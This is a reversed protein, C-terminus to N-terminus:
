RKLSELYIICNDVIRQLHRKSYHHEIELQEFTMGNIYKNILIAKHLESPIANIYEMCVSRHVILRDIETNILRDLNDIKLNINAKTAPSNIVSTKTKLSQLYSLENLKCNILSDIAKYQELTEVVSM